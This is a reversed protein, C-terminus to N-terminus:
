IRDYFQTPLVNYVSMACVTPISNKRKEQATHSKIESNM